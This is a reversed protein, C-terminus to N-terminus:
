VPFKVGRVQVNYDPIQARFLARIRETQGKFSGVNCSGRWYRQKQEGNSEIEFIYRAGTPCFGREDAVKESDDGRDFNMISLARVFEDYAAENNTYTNSSIVQNEYTDRVEIAVLAKSVSIRVSQFTENAIIPGQATFVMSSDENIYQTMAPKNNQELTTDQSNISRFIMIFVVVALVIAIVITIIYRLHDRM